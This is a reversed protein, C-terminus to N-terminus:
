QSGEAHKNAWIIACFLKCLPCIQHHQCCSQWSVHYIGLAIVLVNLVSNFTVIHDFFSVLYALSDWSNYHVLWMLFNQNTIKSLNKLIGIMFTLIQNM